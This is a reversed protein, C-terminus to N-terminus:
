NEDEWKLIWRQEKLKEEKYIKEENRRVPNKNRYDQRWLAWCEANLAFLRVLNGKMKNAMERRLKGIEESVESSIKSFKVDRPLTTWFSSPDRWTTKRYVSKACTTVSESLGLVHHNDIGTCFSLSGSRWTMQAGQRITHSHPTFVPCCRPSAYQNM